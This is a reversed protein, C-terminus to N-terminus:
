PKDPMQEQPVFLVVPCDQPLKDLAEVFRQIQQNRQQMLQELKSETASKPPPSRRINKLIETTLEHFDNAALSAAGSQTWQSWGIIALMLLAIARLTLENLFDGVPNTPKPESM